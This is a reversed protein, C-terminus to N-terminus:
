KFLLSILRKAEVSKKDNADALYNLAYRIIDVDESKLIRSKLSFLANLEIGGGRGQYTDIPFHYALDAIDRKVTHVSVGLELSIRKVTIRGCRILLNLLDIQRDYKRGM